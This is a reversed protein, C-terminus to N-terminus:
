FYEDDHQLIIGCCLQSEISPPDLHLHHEEVRSHRFMPVGQMLEDVPPDLECPDVECPGVECPDLECPGVECPDLECPGVECPGVECPDVECPGVECPDVECPGVECPDLEVECPDLPESSSCLWSFVNELTRSGFEIVEPTIAAAMNTGKITM